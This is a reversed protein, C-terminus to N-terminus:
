RAAERDLKALIGAEFLGGDALAAFERPCFQQLRENVLRADEEMRRRARRADSLRQRLEACQRGTLVGEFIWGRDYPADFIRRPHLRLQLNTATVILSEALAFTFDRDGATLVVAPASGARAPIFSVRDAPGALRSTFADLGAHWPGEAPLDFWWHREAYLLDEPVSILDGERPAGRGSGTQDLFQDCYRHADSGCRILMAESYPIFKTVPAAACYQVALKELNPCVGPPEVPSEAAGVFGSCHSYGGNLCLTGPPAATAQPILKRASSSRCGWVCAERLFPCTM